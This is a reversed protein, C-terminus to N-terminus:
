VHKKKYPSPKIPQAPAPAVGAADVWQMPSNNGVSLDLAALHRGFRVAHDRVTRWRRLQTDFDSPGFTIENGQCTMLVLVGPRSLDIHKVDVLGVLSSRNFAQILELASHVKPSESQRGPRIDQPQVGLLVPLFDNTLALPTARQVSEIPFMFHGRADVTYRGAVTGDARVLGVQAIPERENVHIRLTGPLVREVAVSEIAPVM